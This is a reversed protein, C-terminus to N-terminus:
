SIHPRELDTADDVCVPYAVPSLCCSLSHMFVYAYVTSMSVSMSLITDEENFTYM